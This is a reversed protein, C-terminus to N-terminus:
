FTVKKINKWTRPFLFDRLSLKWLWSISLSGATNFSNVGRIICIVIKSQMVELSFKFKVCKLKDSVKLIWETYTGQILM